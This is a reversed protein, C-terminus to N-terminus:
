SALSSRLFFNEAQRCFFKFLSISFYLFLDFLGCQVCTTPTTSATTARIGTASISIGRATRAARLLVGITTLPLVVATM